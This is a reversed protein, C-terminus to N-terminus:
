LAIGLGNQKITQGLYVNPNGWIPIKYVLSDYFKNSIAYKNIYDSSYYNNIIDCRNYFDKKEEDSYYGTIIVNNYKDSIFDKLKDYTM